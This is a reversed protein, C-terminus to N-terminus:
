TRRAARSSTMRFWLRYVGFMLKKLSSPIPISHALEVALQTREEQTMGAISLTVPQTQQVPQTEEVPPPEEIPQTEEASETQPVQQTHQPSRARFVEPSLDVLIERQLNMAVASETSDMAMLTTCRRSPLRKSTGFLLHMALTDLYPLATHIRDEIASLRFLFRGFGIAGDDTSNGIEPDLCLYAGDKEKDHGTQVMESWACGAEPFDQLTRLLSSLHDSFIREQSAVICVYDEVALSRIVESLAEGIPRRHKVSGDPRREMFQFAAIELPTSLRSLRCSVRPGFIEADRADMAIVGRIAVNKQAQCSEIHQELIEPHFEPMLFVVCIREEPRKPAYACALQAKRATLGEYMRQLCTDLRFNERFIDQSRKAMALAKAPESKIWGLHSQVQSYTDEPALTTDIYLLSDGFHRRAFPNESCIIVAGAASSEFIRSSMMESQRHADSSLVLSIGAQNILRVVSAGDFPIPEVYSKFGQWVDVGGFIKPGYIRFDDREDLLGLLGDHRGPKNGLKEWNIGVYFLKRDGLTPELIPGSLTPYFRFLPRERRPGNSISRMVHDDGAASDCSLFDDHTLLHRTFKRYDWELYFQLPNWLTVFSFIDFRKPTVFHLSLVFDVDDQTLLTYPPHILRASSDVVLCELDLLKAAIRLREIVEDEAAKPWVKIVAFKRHLMTQNEM